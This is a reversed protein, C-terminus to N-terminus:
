KWHGEIIKLVYYFFTSSSTKYQTIYNKDHITM